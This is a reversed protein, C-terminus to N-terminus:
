ATRWVRWAGKADQGVHFHPPKGEQKKKMYAANAKIAKADEQAVVVSQGKLKLADFLAQWKSARVGSKHRPIPVDVDVHFKHTSGSINAQLVDVMTVPACIDVDDICPGSSYFYEGFEDRRRLLVENLVFPGLASHISARRIEPWKAAMDDPTLEEDKNNQFFSVVLHAVSGFRPRYKKNTM